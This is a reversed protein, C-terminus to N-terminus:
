NVELENTSKREKEAEAIIMRRYTKSLFKEALLFLIITAEVIKTMDNQIGTKVSMVYAGARLYSIFLAALPVYKPNNKAFVAMTVGDWGLGTLEVWRYNTYLSMIECAGGLGGIFGGIVQSLIAVSSVSIGVYQAFKQNKGVQRLKFGLKSRYLFLWALIVVVIAIFLSYFITLKDSGIKIKYTMYEQYTNTWSYTSGSTRPDKFKSYLLYTSFWLCIYNMMLSTVMVSANFIRELLAPILTIIAGVVGGIICGMISGLVRQGPFLYINTLAGGVMGGFLFAGELGLNFKNASFMISVATGTFMLPIAKQIWFTFYSANTLPATFFLKLSTRPLDSSFVILATALGLGILISVTMRLIQHKGQISMNSLISKKEKTKNM